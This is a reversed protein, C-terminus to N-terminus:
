EPFDPTFPRKRSSIRSLNLAKAEFPEYYDHDVWIRTRGELLAKKIITWNPKILEESTLLLETWCTAWEKIPNHIDTGTSLFIPRSLQNTTKLNELWHVTKPDYWRMENNIEFGDVGWELLNERSPHKYKGKRLMPQDMTWTIHDVQVVAGMEKAKKIVSKIHEDTPNYDVKGPFDEIGLFNLHLRLTTWEFGPIIVIEPYKDQLELIPNNNKSTNHDTLVFANFGNAIHWKICQEPTMWGDSATTHSHTDLFFGNEPLIDSRRKYDFAHDPINGRLNPDIRPTM